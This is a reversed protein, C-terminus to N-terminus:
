LAEFNIEKLPEFSLRNTNLILRLLKREFANAKKFLENDKREPISKWNNFSNIFAGAKTSM